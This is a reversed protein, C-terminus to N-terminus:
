PREQHMEARMIRDGGFTFSAWLEEETALEGSERWVQTRVFSVLAGRDAHEYGTAPTSIELDPPGEQLAIERIQGHGHAVNPGM